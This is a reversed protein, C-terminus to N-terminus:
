VQLNKREQSMGSSHLYIAIEEPKKREFPLDHMDAVPQDFLDQFLPITSIEPQSVHPYQAKLIETADNSLDIMSQERGLFIHKVRTKNILHAVAEASNRPSIPFVIYNARM